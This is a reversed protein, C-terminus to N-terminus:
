MPLEQDLTKTFLSINDEGEGKMGKFKNELNFYNNQDRQVLSYGRVAIAFHSGARCAV